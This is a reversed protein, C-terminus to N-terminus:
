EADRCRLLNRLRFVPLVELAAAVKAVSDALIPLRPWFSFPRFPSSEVTHTMTSIRVPAGDLINENSCPQAHGSLEVRDNDAGPKPAQGGPCQIRSGPMPNQHDFSVLIKASRRRDIPMAGKCDLGRQMLDIPEIGLIWLRRDQLREAKIAVDREDVDAVQVFNSARKKALRKNQRM